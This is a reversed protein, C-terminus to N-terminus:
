CMNRVLLLKMLGLRRFMGLVEDKKEPMREVFAVQTFYLDMM